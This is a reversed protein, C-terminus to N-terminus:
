VLKDVLDSKETAIMVTCRDVSRPASVTGRHKTVPPVSPPICKGEGGIVHAITMVITMIHVVARNNRLEDASLVASPSMPSAKALL